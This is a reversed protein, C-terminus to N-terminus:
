GSGATDGVSADAIPAAPAPAGRMFESFAVHAEIEARDIQATQMKMAARLRFLHFCLATFAFGGIVVAFVALLGPDKNLNGAQEVTIM